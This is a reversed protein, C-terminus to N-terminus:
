SAPAVPVTYCDRCPRDHRTALTLPGPLGCVTVGTATRRHAGEASRATWRLSPHMVAHEALARGTQLRRRRAVDLSAIEAM